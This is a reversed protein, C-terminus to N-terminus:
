VGYNRWFNKSDFTRKYVITEGSIMYSLKEGVFYNEVGIYSETWKESFLYKKLENYNKISKRSKIKGHSTGM